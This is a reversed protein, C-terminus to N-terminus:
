RRASVGDAFYADARWIIPSFDANERECPLVGVADWSVYQEEQKLLLPTWIADGQSITKAHNKAMLM